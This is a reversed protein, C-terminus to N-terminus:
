TRITKYKADVTTTDYFNEVRTIGDPGFGVNSLTYVNGNQHEFQIQVGTNLNVGNYYQVNFPTATLKEVFTNCYVIVNTCDEQVNSTYTNYIVNCTYTGTEPVVFYGSINSTTYQGDSNDIGTFSRFNSDTFNGDIVTRTYKRLTNGNYLRGLTDDTGSTSYGRLTVTNANPVKLVSSSLVGSSSKTYVMTSGPIPETVTDIDTMTFFTNSWDDSKLKLEYSGFNQITTNSNNLKVYPFITGTKSYYVDVTSLNKNQGILTISSPLSQDYFYNYPGDTFINVNGNYYTNNMNVYQYDKYLIINNINSNSTFRIKTETVGSLNSLITVNSSTNRTYTNNNIFEISGCNGYLLIDSIAPNPYIKADVWNIGNDSYAITNSNWSTAIFRGNPISTVSNWNNFYPMATQTWNIGDASYAALENSITVFRGDTERYTVASYQINPINTIQTWSTCNYSYAAVDSFYSMLIFLGDSKRCTITTGYLVPSTSQTWNIGNDSYIIINSNWEVALFRGTKQSAEIYTWEQYSPLSVQAWTIGDDSYAAINSGQAVAVFRGSTNAAVSIWKQASPLTTLTWELGDDSYAATNESYSVVVFRGDTSRANVAQWNSFKIPMFINEWRIGDTSRIISGPAVAIVVGNKNSRIYTYYGIRGDQVDSFTYKVYNPFNNSLTLNGSRYEIYTDYQKRTVPIDITFQVSNVNTNAPLFVRCASVNSNNITTWHQISVPNVNSAYYKTVTGVNSTYLYGDTSYYMSSVDDSKNVNSLTGIYSGPTYVNNNLIVNSPTNFAVHLNSTIKVSNPADDSLWDIGNNSYAVFQTQDVLLFRGLSDTTMSIWTSSFPLSTQNWTIGDDSYVVTNSSTGAAAFRGDSSRAAIPRWSKSVPLTTQTWNIGNNSYVAVTSGQALAVFIGNKNGALAYWSATSAFPLSFATWTIGTASYAGVNSSTRFTVFRGDTPRSTVAYWSGVSPLTASTWTIGTASYAANSGSSAVAVCMGTNNSTVYRWFTSKPLTTAVWTTGNNSYSAATGNYAVAVFRGDNPRCTVSTWVAPSLNSTQIWNIGDTSYGTINSSTTAVVCVYRSSGNSAISSWVQNSPLYAVRQKQPTINSLSTYTGNTIKAVFGFPNAINSFSSGSSNYFQSNYTTNGSIYVNGLDGVRVSTVNSNVYKSLWVFKGLKDYKILCSNTSNNAVTGNSNFITGIGTVYVNGTSDVDFESQITCNAVNTTWQVNGDFSMNMVYSTTGYKRLVYVNSNKCRVDTADSATNLYTWHVFGNSDFKTVISSYTNSNNVFAYISGDSQTVTNTLNSVRGVAYVNSGEYDIANYTDIDSAGMLASWEPTFSYKKSKIVYGGKHIFESQVKRPDFVQQYNVNCGGCRYIDTVGYRTTQNTNNAYYNQSYCLISNSIALKVLRSSDVAIYVSDVLLDYYRSDIAAGISNYKIYFTNYVTIGQTYAGAYTIGALYINGDKDSTIHKSSDYDVGDVVDLWNITLDTNFAIIYAGVQMTLPIFNTINGFKDYLTIESSDKNGIMYISNNVFLNRVSLSKDSYIHTIPVLENTYNIMFLSSSDTTPITYFYTATDSMGQLFLHMGSPSVAMPRNSFTNDIIDLDVIKWNIGDESYITNEFSNLIFSNNIPNIAISKWFSSYYPLNFQTWNIGDDSYAAGTGYYCVAVFRGYDNCIILNVDYIPLDLRNWNIGDDSYAAISSYWAVAVFRTDSSAVSRWRQIVPLYGLNWPGAGTASSTSRNNSDSIAVFRGDSKRATLSIWTRSNILNIRAWSIGDDSYLIVNDAFTVFRGYKNVAVTTWNKFVPLYSLSWSYGDDSYVAYTSAYGVAVFRGDSSRCTISTWDRNTPLTSIGGLYGLFDNRTGSIYINNYSDVEIASTSASSTLVTQNIFNGSTDYKYAYRQNACFYITSDRVVFDNITTYNITWPEMIGNSNFKVISCTTGQNLNAGITGDANTIIFDDFTQLSLYVNFLSDVVIKRVTANTLSVYWIFRGSSTYKTVGNYDAVYMNDNSDTTMYIITDPVNLATMDFTSANSQVTYVNEKIFVSANNGNVQAGHSYIPPNFTYEVFSDNRDKGNAWTVTNSSSPTVLGTNKILPIINSESYTATVNRTDFYFQVANNATQTFTKVYFDPLLVTETVTTNSLVTKSLVNQIIYRTTSTNSINIYQAGWNYTTNNNAYIIYNNGFTYLESKFNTNLTVNSGTGYIKINQFPVKKAFGYGPKNFVREKQYVDDNYSFGLNSSAVGFSGLGNITTYSELYPVASEWIITVPYYSDGTVYATTSKDSYGSVGPLGSFVNSFSRICHNNSDCIYLTDNIVKVDTPYNLQDPVFPTGLVTSVTNQYIKRVTHALSDAIYFANSDYTIGSPYAFRATNLDGDISFNEGLVGVFTTIANSVVNMIRIRSSMSETIYLKDGLLVSSTPGNFDKFYFKNTQLTTKTIVDSSTATNSDFGLSSLGSINFTIEPIGNWQLVLVSGDYSLIFTEYSIVASVNGDWANIHPVFNKFNTVLDILGRFQGGFIKPNQNYIPYETEPDIGQYFYTSGTPTLTLSFSIYSNNLATITGDQSIKKIDNEIFDTVYINGNSDVTLSTPSGLGSIKTNVFGDDMTIERITGDQSDSVYIVNGYKALGCPTYYQAYISSGDVNGSVFSGSYTTIEGDMQLARIVSNGSDSVYIINSDYFIRLPNNYLVTKNNDIVTRSNVIVVIKDTSSATITHSGTMYGSYIIEVNSYSNDFKTALGIGYGYDTNLIEDVNVLGTSEANYTAGIVFRTNNSTYSPTDPLLQNPTYQIKNLVLNPIQTSLPIYTSFPSLQLDTSIFNNTTKTKLTYVDNNITISAVVTNSNAYIIQPETNYFGKIVQESGPDIKIATLVTSIVGENVNSIYYGFQLSGTIGTLVHRYNLYSKTIDVPEYIFGNQSGMHLFNPTITSTKTMIPEQRLSLARDLYLDIYSGSVFSNQTLTKKLGTYEYKYKRVDIEYKVSNYMYVNQQKLATYTGPTVYSNVDGYIAQVLKGATFFSTGQITDYYVPTNTGDFLTKTTQNYFVDPLLQIYPENPIQPTITFKDNYYELKQNVWRWLTDYKPLIVISITQFSSDIFNLVSSEIDNETVPNGDRDILNGTSIEYYRNDNILIYTANHPITIYDFPNVYGAFGGTYVDIFFGDISQSDGNWKFYLQYAPLQTQPASIFTLVVPTYIYISGSYSYSNSLNGNYYISITNNEINIRSGSTFEVFDSSLIDVSANSLAYLTFGNSFDINETTDNPPDAQTYYDALDITYYTHTNALDFPGWLADIKEVYDVYYSYVRFETVVGYFPYGLTIEGSTQTVQMTYQVDNLYVTSGSVYMYYDTNLDLNFYLNSLTFNSGDSKTLNLNNMGFINENEIYDYLRFKIFLTKFPTNIVYKTVNFFTMSGHFEFSTDTQKITSEPSITPENSLAVRTWVKGSNLTGFTMVTGEIDGETVQAGTSDLLKGTSIEYYRNTNVLIHTANPPITIYDFLNVYGNFGGTYTDIFYGDYAQNDGNWKWTLQYRGDFQLNISDTQNFGESVIQLVSNVISLYTGGGYYNYIKGNPQFVWAYDYNQAQFFNSYVIFDYHRLYGDSQTHYIGVAGQGSNYVAPDVFETFLAAEDQNSTLEFTSGNYKLFQNDTVLAFSM